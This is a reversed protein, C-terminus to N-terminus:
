GDGSHVFINLDPRSLALGTALTLARGHISHIGYTNIYFPARGSCGIGSINVTDHPKIQQNVMFRKLGMIISFDGCGACWRPNETNLDKISIPNEAPQNETATSHM